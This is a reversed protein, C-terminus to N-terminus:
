AITCFPNNLKEFGITTEEGHGPYVVTDDDLEFLKTHISDILSDYDGGPLDHRGISMRFLVDGGMCLLQKKNVFALHGPSHGPVFLIELESNGFTITDDETLFVEAEIPDYAPFGYIQAMTPVSRLVAEEQKPIELKVEYTRHVFANGLVHDVHCHTNLLRVVKLEKSAIFSALEEQEHKEYCGPDIIVAEKTEDYLVYTSEQLPNFTFQQIKIM